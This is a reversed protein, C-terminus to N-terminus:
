RGQNTRQKNYKMMVKPCIDRQIRYDHSILKMRHDMIKTPASKTGEVVLVVILVIVTVVTSGLVIIRACECM